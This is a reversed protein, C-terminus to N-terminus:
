FLLNEKSMMKERYVRKKIKRDKKLYSKKKRNGHSRIRGIYPISFDVLDSKKLKRSKRNLVERLLLRMESRKLNPYKELLAKSLEIQM